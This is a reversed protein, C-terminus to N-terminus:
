QENEKIITQRNRENYNMKVMWDLSELHDLLEKTVDFRACGPYLVTGDRKEPGCVVHSVWLKDGFGQDPQFRNRGEASSVQYGPHAADPDPLYTGEALAELAADADRGYIVTINLPQM